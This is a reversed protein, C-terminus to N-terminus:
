CDGSYKKCAASDAVSDAAIRWRDGTTSEIRWRERHVRFDAIALGFRCSWLGTDGAAITRAGARIDRRGIAVATRLVPIVPFSRQHSPFRKHLRPVDRSYSPARICLRTDGRLVPSFGRSHSRRRASQVPDENAHATVAICLLWRRACYATRETLLWLSRGSLSRLAAFLRRVAACLRRWTGWLSRCTKM